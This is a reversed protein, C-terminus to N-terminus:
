ECGREWLPCHMKIGSKIDQGEDCLERCDIGDAPSFAACTKCGRAAPNKFCRAIHRAAANKNARTMRCHPCQYRTVKVAIPM